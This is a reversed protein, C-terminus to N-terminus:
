DFQGIHRFKGKCSKCVYGGLVFPIQRSRGPVSRLNHEYRVFTGDEYRSIQCCMHCFVASLLDDILKVPLRLRQAIQEYAQTRENEITWGYHLPKRGYLDVMESHRSDFKEVKDIKLGFHAACRRVTMPECREAFESDIETLIVGEVTKFLSAVGQRPGTHERLRKHQIVLRSRYLPINARTVQLPKLKWEAPTSWHGDTLHRCTELATDFIATPEHAL